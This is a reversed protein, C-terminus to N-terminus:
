GHGIDHPDQGWNIIVSQLYNCLSIRFLAVHTALEACQVTKQGLQLPIALSGRVQVSGILLFSDVIGM